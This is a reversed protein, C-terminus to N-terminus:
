ERGHADGEKDPSAPARRAREREVYSQEIRTPKDKCEAHLYGKIVEKAFQDPSIGTMVEVRPGMFSRYGTSSIFPKEYDVAHAEFSPWFMAMTGIGLMGDQEICVRMGDVDVIYNGTQGWKPITGEPAATARELLYGPAEPGALIGHNDPDLRRALDRAENRLKLVAAEDGVMMAAHHKDILDRYYPTAEELTAPLHATRENEFMQDFGFGFQDTM